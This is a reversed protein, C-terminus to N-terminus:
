NCAHINFKQFCFGMFHVFIQVGCFNAIVCNFDLQSKSYMAWTKTVSTHGQNDDDTQIPEDQQHGQEM